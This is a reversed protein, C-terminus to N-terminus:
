DFHYAIMECRRQNPPETAPTTDQVSVAIPDVFPTFRTPTETRHVMVGPLGLPGNGGKERFSM